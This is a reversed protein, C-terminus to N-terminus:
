FSHPYTSMSFQASCAHLYRPNEFQPRAEGDVFSWYEATGGADRAATYDKETNFFFNSSGRYLADVLSLLFWENFEFAKPWEYMLQHCYDLFQFLIPSQEKWRISGDSKVQGWTRDRIKHGYSHLERQILVRFGEFTRYYPDLCIEAGACLQFTRDWGDSCHVVSSRGNWISEVIHRCSGLVRGIHSLWGTDFIESRRVPANGVRKNSCVLKHMATISDRMVHINDINCFVLTPRLAAAGEYHSVDEFGGKAKGFGKAKNGMANMWPRADVLLLPKHNPNARMIADFLAVDHTSKKGTMGTLPQACRTIAADSQVDYWSLATLRGKSRFKAVERLEADPFDHPVLLCRPYTPSFSFDENLDTKRWTSDQRLAGQREFEKEADYWHKGWSFHKDAANWQGDSETRGFMFSGKRLQDQRLGDLHTNFQRVTQTALREEESVDADAGGGMGGFFKMVANTPEALSERKIVSLKMQKQRERDGVNEESSTDNMVDLLALLNADFMFYLRRADKCTVKLIPALWDLHTSLRLSKKVKTKEIAMLPVELTFHRQMDARSPQAGPQASSVEGETRNFSIFILRYNTLFLTGGFVENNPLRVVCRQGLKRLGPIRENREDGFALSDDRPNVFGKLLKDTMVQVARHVARQEQANQKSQDRNKMTSEQEDLLEQRIRNRDPAAIQWKANGALELLRDADFIQSIGKRLVENVEQSNQAARLPGGLEEHPDVLIQLSALAVRVLLETPPAPSSEVFTLTLPRPADKMLRMTQPYDLARVNQGNVMTVVLGVRLKPNKIAIGDPALQGIKLPSSNKKFQIGIRGEPFTVEIPDQLQTSEKMNAMLKDWVRMSTGFPLSNVFICLFWHIFAVEPIVQNKELHEYAAPVYKQALEMLFRCETRCGFMHRAHYEKIIREEFLALHWFADEESKTVILLSAAIFNMSQCYGVDRNRAAYAVLVRRLQEKGGPNDIDKHGPFTRHLDQDIVKEVTEMDKSREGAEGTRSVLDDYTEGGLFKDIESRATATLSRWAEPRLAHPIGSQVLRAGARLTPNREHEKLWETWAGSNDPSAHSEAFLREKWYLGEDGAHVQFDFPDFLPQGTNHPSTTWDDPGQGEPWEGMVKKFAAHQLIADLQELYDPITVVELSDAGCMKERFKAVDQLSVAGFDLMQTMIKQMQIFGVEEELEKQNQLQFEDMDRVNQQADGNMARQRATEEFIVGEWFHISGWLPSDRIAEEQALHRNGEPTLRYYVNLMTMYVSANETDHQDLVCRLAVEFVTVLNLFTRKDLRPSRRGAELVSRLATRGEAGQMSHGAAGLASELKPGERSHLATKLALAASSDDAKPKFPSILTGEDEEQAEDTRTSAVVLEEEDEDDEETQKEGFVGAEEPEPEPELDDPADIVPSGLPGERAAAASPPDEAAPPPPAPAALPDDATAVSGAPATSPRQESVDPAPSSLPDDIPPAVSEAPAPAPVDDDLAADLDAM